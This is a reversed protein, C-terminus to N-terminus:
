RNVDNHHRKITSVTVHVGKSKEDAKYKLRLRVLRVSGRHQISVCKQALPVFINWSNFSDRHLVLEFSSTKPLPDADLLDPPLEPSTDNDPLTSACCRTTPQYAGRGIEDAYGHGAPLLALATVRLVALFAIHRANSTSREVSFNCDLDDDLSLELEDRRVKM